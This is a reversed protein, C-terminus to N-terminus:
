SRSFERMQREFEYLGRAGSANTLQQAVAQVTDNIVSKYMDETDMQYFTKNKRDKGFLKSIIPIKNIFGEHKECLWWSVFTGTGFPACCVYFVHEHITIRLYARRDSLIHTEAISEDAYELGEVRREKLGAKVETYFSSTSFQTNDYFHKWHSKITVPTKMRAIMIIIAGIIALEFFRPIASYPSFYASLATAGLLALLIIFNKM